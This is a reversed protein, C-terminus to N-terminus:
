SLVDSDSPPKQSDRYEKGLRMADEYVPDDKFAGFRQQWWPAKAPEVNQVQKLRKMEAELASVREELSITAM